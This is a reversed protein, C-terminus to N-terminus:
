EDAFMVKMLSRGKLKKLGTASSLERVPRAETVLTCVLMGGGENKFQCVVYHRGDKPHIVTDGKYFRVVGESASRSKVRMAEAVPVLRREGTERNLELCAFGAHKLWKRFANPSSGLVKQPADKRSFVSTFMGPQDTFCFVRRIPTGFRPHLIPDDFVNAPKIGSALREEVAKRVVERTEPYAISAVFKRVGRETAGSGAADKLKKRSALKRVKGGNEEIEILRYATDEFFQGDPYRDPKHWVPCAEVLARARDRLDPMPPDVQLRFRVKRGEPTEESVRKYHRAMRNFLGPTSCAIVIADILHHRHALRKDARAEGAHLDEPTLPNGAEDLVPLGEGFRVEPIVTDLGWIHRLHATLAGRTVFVRPCIEKLWQAALKAIWGSEHYQRETFDAI